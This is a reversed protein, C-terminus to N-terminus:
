LWSLLMYIQITNSQGVNNYLWLLVNELDNFIYKVLSNNVITTNKKTYKDNLRGFLDKSLTKLFFDKNTDKVKM